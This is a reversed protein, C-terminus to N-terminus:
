MILDDQKFISYFVKYVVDSKRGIQCGENCFLIDLVLVKLDLSIFLTPRHLMVAATSTYDDDATHANTVRMKRKQPNDFGGTIHHVDENEGQEILCDLDLDELM